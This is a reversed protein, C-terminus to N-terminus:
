GHPHNAKKVIAFAQALNLAARSLTLIAHAIARVMIAAAVFLVAV